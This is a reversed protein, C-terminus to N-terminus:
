RGDFHNHWIVLILVYGVLSIIFSGDYEECVFFIAGSVFATAFARFISKSAPEDWHRSFILMCLVVSVLVSIANDFYRGLMLVVASATFRAAFHVVKTATIKM